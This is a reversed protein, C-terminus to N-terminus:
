KYKFASEVGRLASGVFDGDSSVLRGVLGGCRRHTFGRGASPTICGTAYEKEGPQTHVLLHQRHRESTPAARSV